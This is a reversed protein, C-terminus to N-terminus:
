AVPIDTFQRKNFNQSSTNPEVINIDQTNPELHYNSLIPVMAVLAPLFILAMIWGWIKNYSKLIAIDTHIKAFDSQIKNFQEVSRVSEEKADEIHKDIAKELKDITKEIGEPTYNLGSTKELM